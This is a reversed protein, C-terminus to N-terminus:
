KSGQEYRYKKGDVEVTCLHIGEPDGNEKFDYQSSVGQWDEMEHLYETVSAFDTKGTSKVADAILYISEYGKGALFSVPKQGYAQQYKANFTQQSASKDNPNYLATYVIGKSDKGMLSVVDDFSFGGASLIPMDQDRDRIYRILGEAYPLSDAIFVADAQMVEWKDFQTNFETRNIFDSHVDCVEIGEKKCAREFEAALGRGYDNDTYCIAISDYRKQAAYQAMYEAEDADTPVMRFVTEYGQQTLEPSSVMPTIAPLGADAYIAAAPLNIFANWHGVVASYEQANGAIEQAVEIGTSLDRKDDFYTVKVKKDKLYGTGNIEKLALDIGNKFEGEMRNEPGAVAIHVTNQEESSGCASLSILCLTAIMSAALAVWIRKKRHKRGDKM